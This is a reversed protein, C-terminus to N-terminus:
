GHLGCHLMSEGGLLGGVLRLLGAYPSQAQQLRGTLTAVPERYEAAMTTFVEDPCVSWFELLMPLYDPLEGPLLEYGADRYLQRLRVLAAGRKKGDGPLHCTLNLSMAAQMDFTEIYEEQLRLLPQDQVHAVFGALIEKGALAPLGEVAAEIEPLAGALEEDPYHLLLCLLKFAVKEPEQM